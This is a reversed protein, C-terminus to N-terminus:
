RLRPACSKAYRLIHFTSLFVKSYLSHWKAHANGGRARGSHFVSQRHSPIVVSDDRRRGVYLEFASAAGAAKVVDGKEGTSLVGGTTVKGTRALKESTM